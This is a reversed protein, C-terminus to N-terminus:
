YSLNDLKKCNEYRNKADQIPKEHSAKGDQFRRIIQNANYEIDKGYKNNFDELKKEVDRMASVASEYDSNASSDGPNKDRKDKANRVKEQASALQDLLDKREKLANDRARETVPIATKEFFTQVDTRARVCRDAPDIGRRAGDKRADLDDKLERITQRLRDKDSDNISGSELQKKADNYKDIQRQQKDVDCDLMRNCTDDKNRQLDHCDSRERDSVISKCGNEAAFANFNQARATAGLGVVVAIVAGISRFVM